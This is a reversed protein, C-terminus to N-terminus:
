QNLNQLWSTLVLFISINLVKYILTHVINKINTDEDQISISIFPNIVCNINELGFLISLRIYINPNWHNSSYGSLPELVENTIPVINKAITQACTAVGVVIEKM